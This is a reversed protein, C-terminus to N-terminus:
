KPLLCSINVLLLGDILFIRYLAVQFFIIHGGNKLHGDYRSIEGSNYYVIFEHKIKNPTAPTSPDKHSPVQSQSIFFFNTPPSILLNESLGLFETMGSLNISTASTACNKM